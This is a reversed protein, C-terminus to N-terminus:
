TGVFGPPKPLPPDPQIAPQALRERAAVVLAALVGGSLGPAFRDIGAFKRVTEIPMDRIVDRASEVLRAAMESPRIFENPM